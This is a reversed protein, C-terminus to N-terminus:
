GSYLSDNEGNKGGENDKVQKIFKQLYYDIDKDHKLLVDLQRAFGILKGILHLQIRMQGETLNSSRAIVLDGNMEVRFGGRELINKLLSARRSRRTIDTVGGVFRFSISNNEPSSGISAEVATFHYGLPLSLNLYNAGIVALNVSPLANGMVEASRTRTLSSMLGKFDVPIPDTNWVNPSSLGEWLLKMPRSTIQDADVHIERDADEALGGGIDILILDLPLHSRLRKGGRQTFSRPDKGAQLLARFAKEHVFRMIDHFTRCGRPTFTPAEPDTLSLPAIKRLLRRLLQFEHTVEFSPVDFLQRRLLEEILGEYVINREADVTVEQDSSLLETAM